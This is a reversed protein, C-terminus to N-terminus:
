RSAAAAITVRSERRVSEWLDVAFFMLWSLAIAGLIYPGYSPPSAITLVAVVTSLACMIAGAYNMAGSRAALILGGIAGIIGLGMWKIGTAWPLIQFWISYGDMNSTIHLLCANEVLDALAAVISISVGATAFRTERATGRHLVADPLRRLESRVRFYGGL